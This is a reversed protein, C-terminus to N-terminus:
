DVGLAASKEAEALDTVGCDCTIVLSAGKDRLYRVGDASLGHGESRDPIYVPADTGLLALTEKIVATSTVGDVDFDGFIGIKERNLLAKNIREVAKDVDPIHFPSGAQFQTPDLYAAVAEPAVGRNYLLQALLPPQSVAELYERPVGPRIEWRCPPRPSRSSTTM